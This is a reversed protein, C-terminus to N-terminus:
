GGFTGFGFLSLPIEPTEKIIRQYIFGNGTGKRIYQGNEVEQSFLKEYYENKLFNMTKNVALFNFRAYPYLVMTQFWFVLKSKWFSIFVPYFSHGTIKQRRVLFIAGFIVISALVIVSNLFFVQRIGILDSIV